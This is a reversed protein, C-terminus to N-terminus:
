QIATSASASVTFFAQIEAVLMLNNMQKAAMKM